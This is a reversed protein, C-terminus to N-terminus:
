IICKYGLDNVLLYKIREALIASFNDGAELSYRLNYYFSLIVRSMIQNVISCRENIFFLIFTKWATSFPFKDM